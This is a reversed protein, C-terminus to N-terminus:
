FFVKLPTINKHGINKPVTKPPFEDTLVIVFM